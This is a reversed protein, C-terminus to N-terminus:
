KIQNIEITENEESPIPLVFLDMIPAVPLVVLFTAVTNLLVIMLIFSFSQFYVTNM